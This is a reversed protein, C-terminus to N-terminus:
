HGRPEGTDPYGPFCQLRWRSLLLLMLGGRLARAWGAPKDSPGPNLRGGGIVHTRQKFGRGAVGSDLLSAEHGDWVVCVMNKKKSTRATAVNHVNVAALMFATRIHMSGIISWVDM